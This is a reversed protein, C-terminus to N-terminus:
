DAPHPQPAAAGDEPPQDAANGNEQKAQRNQFQELMRSKAQAMPMPMSFLFGQYIDCHLKKLLQLQEEREVGEAVVTVGLRCGTQILSELIVKGQRTWMRDMLYKDLKLGDMPYEELDVFSSFGTGFDDFVVRIGMERIARINELMQRSQELPLTESETIEFALLSQIPQPYAELVQRCRQVFDERAFTSRAFNSSIFFQEAGEKRMQEVFACVREFNYFDLRHLRGERELLPIFRDPNLLGKQPHQWRALAEGGVIQRNEDMFFQLYLQMEEQQLAREIESLLQREEQCIRCRETRCVQCSRGERRAGLACQRAHFLLEPLPCDQAQLPYIGAVADSTRLSAGACFFSRIQELAQQTGNELLEQNGAQQLVILNGCGDEALLDAEGLGQQLVQVAHRRFKLPEEYGAMREIHGLDFQFYILYYLSCNEPRVVQSFAQEFGQMSLVGTEPSFLQRERERKLRRRFSLLAAALLALLLCVAVGLAITAPLLHNDARQELATQVIAGTWQQQTQQSVFSTLEERFGEPAVDTIFLECADADGLEFLTLKEAIHEYDEGVCGSVLDVQQNQALEERLDETGPRYYRLDYGYEQAFRQLFDPLTGVFDGQQADYYELPYLSPNGAVYIIGRDSTTM